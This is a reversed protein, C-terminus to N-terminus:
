QGQRKEKCSYDAHMMRRDLNNWANQVTYHFNAICKGFKSGVARKSHWFLVFDDLTQEVTNLRFAKAGLLDILTKTTGFPITPV